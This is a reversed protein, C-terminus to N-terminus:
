PHTAPISAQVVKLLTAKHADFDHTLLIETEFDEANSSRKRVRKGTWYVRPSGTVKGNADRPYKIEMVGYQGTGAIGKGPKGGEAGKSYIGGKRSPRSELAAAHFVPFGGMGTASFGSNRGDDIALMHADGCLMCLNQIDNAILFESIAAREDGYGAWFVERPHAKGMWPLSNGWVILDYSKGKLLQAQLWQM